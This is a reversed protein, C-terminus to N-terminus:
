LTACAASRVAYPPTIKLRLEAARQREGPAGWTTEEGERPLPLPPTANWSGDPRRARIIFSQQDRSEPIRRAGSAPVVYAQFYPPSVFHWELGPEGHFSWQLTDHKRRVDVTFMLALDRQSKERALAAVDPLPRFRGSQADFEVSQQPQAASLLFAERSAVVPPADGRGARKRLDSIGALYWSVSNGVLTPANAPRNWLWEGEARTSANMQRYSTALSPSFSAFAICVVCAVVLKLERSLVSRDAALAFLVFLVVAPGIVFRWEFMAALPAVPATGCILLAVAIAIRRWPNRVLASVAFLALAVLLLLSLAIRDASLQKAITLPLRFLPAADVPTAYGGGSGLMATRWLAFVIAAFFAPAVRAVRQRVAAPSAIVWMVVILPVYIEKELMAGLYLFAALADTIRTRRAFALLALLALCLGEIYHRIMLTRVIYIAPWSVIWLLAGSFAFSLACYRRLLLFLLLASGILLALQHAYFIKPSVGGLALDLKFSATLLPTFTHTALQRYASPDFLEAPLPTDLAHIILAPDDYLWWGGLADVHVVVGAILLTLLAALTLWRERTTSIDNM